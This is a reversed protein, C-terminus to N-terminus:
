LIIYRNVTVGSVIFSQEHRFKNVIQLAAERGETAETKMGMLDCSLVEDLVWSADRAVCRLEPESSYCKSTTNRSVPRPCKPSM